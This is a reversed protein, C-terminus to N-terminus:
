VTILAMRQQNGPMIYYAQSLGQSSVTSSIAIATMKPITKVSMPIPHAIIALNNKIPSLRNLSPPIPSAAKKNLAPAAKVRAQAIM